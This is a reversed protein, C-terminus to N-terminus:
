ETLSALTDGPAPLATTPKPPSAKEGCGWLLLFFAILVGGAPIGLGRPARRVSATVSHRGQFAAPSAEGAHESRITRHDPGRGRHRAPGAGGPDALPRERERLPGRRAQRLRRAIRIRLPAPKALAALGIGNALSVSADPAPRGLGARSGPDTSGEPEGPEP